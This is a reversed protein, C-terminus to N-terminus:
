SHWDCVEVSEYRWESSNYGYQGEALKISKDTHRVDEDLDYDAAMKDALDASNLNAPPAPLEEPNLKMSLKTGMNKEAWDLSDQSETIDDEEHFRVPKLSKLHNEMKMEDTVFEEPIAPSGLSGHIPDSMADAGSQVLSQVDDLDKAADHAREEAWQRSYTQIQNDASSMRGALESIM